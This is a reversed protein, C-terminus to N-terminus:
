SKLFAVILPEYLAALFGAMIVGCMPFTSKLTLKRSLIGGLCYICVAGAMGLLFTFVNPYGIAVAIASTIKIDGAGIGGSQKFLKMVLMCAIFIGVVISLATVSSLFGYLNQQYVRFILGTIFLVLVMENPIIRIKYDIITCIVAISTFLYAVLMSPITKFYTVSSFFLIFIFTSLILLSKLNWAVKVPEKMDM